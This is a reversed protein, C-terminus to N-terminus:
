VQQAKLYDYGKELKDFFDIRESKTDYFESTIQEVYEQKFIVSEKEIKILMQIFYELKLSEGMLLDLYVVMGQLFTNEDETNEPVLQSMATISLIEAFEKRINSNDNILKYSSLNKRLFPVKTRYRWSPNSLHSILLDYRSTVEKVFMYNIELNEISRSQVM